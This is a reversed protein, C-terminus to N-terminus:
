FTTPWTAMRHQGVGGSLRLEHIELQRILYRRTESPPIVAQVAYIEALGYASSDKEMQERIRQKRAEPVDQGWTV